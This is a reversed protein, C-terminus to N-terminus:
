KGGRAAATIKNICEIGTHTSVVGMHMMHLLTAVLM